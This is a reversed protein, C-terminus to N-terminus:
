DGLYLFAAWICVMLVSVILFRKERRAAAATARRAENKM